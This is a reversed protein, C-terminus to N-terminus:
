YPGLQPDAIKRRFALIAILLLIAAAVVFISIDGISAPPEFYLSVLLIAFAVSSWIITCTRTNKTLQRAALFFASIGFIAVLLGAGANLYEAKKRYDFGTQVYQWAMLLSFGVCLLALPYLLFRAPNRLSLKKPQSAHLQEITPAAYPNM